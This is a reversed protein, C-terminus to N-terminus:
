PCSSHRRRLFWRGGCVWGPINNSTSPMSTSNFDLSSFSAKIYVWIKFFLMLMWLGRVGPLTTSLHPVTIETAAPSRLVHGPYAPVTAECTERGGLHLPGSGKEQLGQHMMDPTQFCRLETPLLRSSHGRTLRWGASRLDVEAESWFNMNLCNILAKLLCANVM